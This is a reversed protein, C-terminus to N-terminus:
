ESEYLKVLIRQSIEGQLRAQCGVPRASIRLVARTRDNKAGREEREDGSKRSARLPDQLLEGLGLGLGLSAPAPWPAVTM